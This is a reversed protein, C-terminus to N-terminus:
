LFCDTDNLECNCVCKHPNYLLHNLVCEPHFEHRHNSNFLQVFYGETKEDQCVCCEFPDPSEILHVRIFNAISNIHKTNSLRKVREFVLVDKQENYLQIFNQYDQEQESLLSM